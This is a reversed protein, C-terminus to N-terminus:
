QLKSLVHEEKDHKGSYGDAHERWLTLAVKESNM